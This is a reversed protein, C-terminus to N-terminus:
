FEYVRLVRLGCTKATQSLTEFRDGPEFDTTWVPWAAGRAKIARGLMSVRQVQLCGVWGATLLVKYALDASVMPRAFIRYFLITFHILICDLVSYKVTNEGYKKERITKGDWCVHTSGRSLLRSIM